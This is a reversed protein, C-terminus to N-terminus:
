DVNQETITNGRQSLKVLQEFVHSASKVAAPDGLLKMQGDRVVVTVNLAREIKKM